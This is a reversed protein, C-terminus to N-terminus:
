STLMVFTTLVHIRLAMPPHPQRLRGRHRGRCPFQRPCRSDAWIIKEKRWSWLSVQWQRPFWGEPNLLRAIITTSSPSYNQQSWLTTIKTCLYHKINVFASIQATKTNWVIFITHNKTTRSTFLPQQHAAPSTYLSPTVIWPIFRSEM